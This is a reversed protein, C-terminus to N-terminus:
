LRLLKRVKALLDEQKFPKTVYHKAGANIGSVVDMAGTKATLMIVPVRALREDERMAKTLGHGDLRPMMVDTIVLDPPRKSAKLIELAAMGDTATQVRAIPELLRSVLTLVAPEDEVCLVRPKDPPPPPPQAM